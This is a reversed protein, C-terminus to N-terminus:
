PKTALIPKERKGWREREREREREAHTYVRAAMNVPEHNSRQDVLAALM